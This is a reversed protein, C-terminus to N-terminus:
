CSGFRYSYFCDFESDWVFSLEALKLIDEKNVTKVDIGCYVYFVDHECHTPTYNDDAYKLLIQLAEILDKM